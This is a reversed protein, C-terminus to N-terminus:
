LGVVTVSNLQLVIKIPISNASLAECLDPLFAIYFNYLQRYNM